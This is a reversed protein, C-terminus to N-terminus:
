KSHQKKLKFGKYGKALKEKHSGPNYLDMKVKVEKIKDFDLKPKQKNESQDMILVGRCHILLLMFRDFRCHM